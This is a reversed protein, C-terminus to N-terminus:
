SNYYSKNLTKNKKHEKRIQFFLSYFIENLGSMCCLADLQLNKCVVDCSSIISLGCAGQFFFFCFLILFFAVLAANREM